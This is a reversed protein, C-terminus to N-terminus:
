SCLDNALVLWLREYLHAYGLVHELPYRGGDEVLCGPLRSIAPLSHVIREALPSIM